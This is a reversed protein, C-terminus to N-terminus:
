SQSFEPDIEPLFALILTQSSGRVSELPINRELDYGHPILQYDPLLTSKIRELWAARACEFQPKFIRDHLSLAALCVINDAPWCLGDYSELYPKRTEKIAKEIEACDAEFRQSELSDRENLQLYRGRVYTTWGKYFAGYKLPLRPNFVAKGVPSDMQELCYSLEVAAEIRLENDPPLDVVADCWALAYLAHIFMFGEPYLNQAAEGAKNEHLAKKLFHLQGILDTNGANSSCQRTDYLRVNFYLFLFIGALGVIRIPWRFLRVIM